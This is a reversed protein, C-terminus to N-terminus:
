VQRRCMLSLCSVKDFGEQVIQMGNTVFRIASWYSGLLGSSGVTPIHDLEGFSPLSSQVSRPSPFCVKRHRSVGSAYAIVVTVVGIGCFLQFYLSSELM